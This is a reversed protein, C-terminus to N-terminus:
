NIILYNHINSKFSFAEEMGKMATAQTRVPLRGYIAQSSVPLPLLNDLYKVM